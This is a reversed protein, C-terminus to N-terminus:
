DVSEAATSEDDGEEDEEYSCQKTKLEETM